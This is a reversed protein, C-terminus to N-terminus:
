NLSKRNKYRRVMELIGYTGLIIFFPEVPYRYRDIAVTLITALWGGMFPLLLLFYEKKSQIVFFAGITGILLFLYVYHFNYVGTHWSQLPSIYAVTKKISLLITRKPNDKMYGFAEKSWVESLQLESYDKIGPYKELLYQVQPATWPAMAFVEANHSGRTWQNNGWYFSDTQTSLVPKGLEVYNRAVWSGIVVSAFFGFVFATIFKKEKSFFFLYGVVLPLALALYGRTLIALGFLLASLTIKWFSFKRFIQMLYYFSFVLFFMGLGETYIRDTSFWSLLATPYLAWVLASILGTKENFVMKGILGIFVCCLASLIILSIRPMLLNEGFVFFHAAIFAPLVPTRYATPEGPDGGQFQVQTLEHAVFEKKEYLTQALMYYDVEDNVLKIPTNYALVIARAILALITILLLTKKFGLKDVWTTRESATIASLAQM